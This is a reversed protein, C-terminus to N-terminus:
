LQTPSVIKGPEFFQMYFTLAFATVLLVALLAVELFSVVIHRLMFVYIGICSCEQLFAILVVWGLFVAVVGFQWQWHHVCLCPAFFVSVFIISCLYLPIHMWNAWDQIYELPYRLQFFDMLLRVVAMLITSVATFYLFNYEFPSLGVYFWRNVAYSM